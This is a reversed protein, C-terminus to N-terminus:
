HPYVFLVCDRLELSKLRTPFTAYATLKLKKALHQIPNNVTYGNSFLVWNLRSALLFAQPVSM